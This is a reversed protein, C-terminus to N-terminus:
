IGEQKLEEILKKASRSVKKPTRVWVKIMLDGRKGYAQPMGKGRVRLVEGSDVGAPIKLKIVGDITKIEKEAGLLADSIKIDLDMLISTGVRRFLAHPLVHIKVYLDGNVGGSVAEGMGPLKIMEGNEIGSPINITIEEKKPAVGGGACASCKQSPIVGKGFCKDCERLSTFSGFLSKRTEHVKGKGQCYSCNKSESGPAAGSGSCIDCVSVKSLLVKREAGFVSEEFSVEMDISIDRGRKTRPGQRGGFVGEFIDGLDFEVGAGQGGFGGFDSSNFGGGPTPGGESSFVRGYTDYEARKKSNSLVSYAENIEKFKDDSGGAKDPHHKHALKRFAKKIEDQSAGKAVGLIDYYNKTMHNNGHM